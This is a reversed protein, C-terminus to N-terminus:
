EVFLTKLLRHKVNFGKCYATIFSHNHIRFDNKGNQVDDVWCRQIFYYVEKAVRVEQIVNKRSRM